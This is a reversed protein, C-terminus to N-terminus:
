REVVDEEGWGDGRLLRWSESYISLGVRGFDLADAEVEEVFRCSVADFPRAVAPVLRRPRMGFQNAGPCVSYREEWLPQLFHLQIDRWRRSYLTPPPLNEDVPKHTPLASCPLEKSTM